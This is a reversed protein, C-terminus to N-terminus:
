AWNLVWVGRKRVIKTGRIRGYPDEPEHVAWASDGADKVKIRMRGAIGDAIGSVYERSGVAIADSLTRRAVFGAAPSRM